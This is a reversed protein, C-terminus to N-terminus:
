GNSFGLRAKAEEVTSIDVISWGRWQSGNAALALAAGVAAEEDLARFVQSRMFVGPKSFRVIFDQYTPPSLLADMKALESGVSDLAQQAADLGQQRLAKLNRRTAM